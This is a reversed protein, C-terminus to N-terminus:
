AKKRIRRVALGALSVGLLAVTTPEPVPVQKGMLVMNGEYIYYNGSTWLGDRDMYGGFWFTLTPPTNPAGNTNGGWFMDTTDFDVTFTFVQSALNGDQFNFGDAFTAADWGIFEETNYGAPPIGWGAGSWTESWESWGSPGDWSVWDLPKYDEGWNAGRGNLGWLNLSLLRDNTSGAWATFAASESAWYSRTNAIGNGDLNLRILRAGDYVGNAAASTNDSGAATVYSMLDAATFSFEYRVTDAYAGAILLLSLAAILAVRKM